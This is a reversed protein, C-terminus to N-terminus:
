DDSVYIELKNELKRIFSKSLEPEEQKLAILVDKIGSCKGKYYYYGSVFMLLLTYLGAFWLDNINM